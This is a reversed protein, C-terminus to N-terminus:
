ATTVTIRGSSPAAQSREERHDMRLGLKEQRLQEEDRKADWKVERVAM